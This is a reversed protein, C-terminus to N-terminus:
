RTQLVTVTVGAPHAADHYVDVRCRV